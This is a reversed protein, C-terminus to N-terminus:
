IHENAREGFDSTLFTAVAAVVFADQATQRHSLGEVSLLAANKCREAAAEVLEHPCREDDTSHVLLLDAPFDAILNILELDRRGPPLSAAYMERARDAVDDGVEFRRGFGRWREVSSDLPPAIAALRSVGLGEKIALASAWCGLSHGVVSHVPGLVNAVAAIADAGSAAYGNDGESLGHAPLDFAVVSLNQARLGDIMPTWLANDDEYGHILLVAPGEGLRWAAIKGQPGEIHHMRASRLPEAVRPTVRRRPPRQMLADLFQEATM